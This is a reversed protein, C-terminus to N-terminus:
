KSIAGQALRPVPTPWWPIVIPFFRFCNFKRNGVIKSVEGTVINCRITDKIRGHLKKTDVIMYLTDENNQDFFVGEIEIWPGIVVKTEDVLYVRKKLKVFLSKSGGHISVRPDDDEEEEEKLECISLYGSVYDYNCMRVGGDYAAICRMPLADWENRIRHRYCTSLTASASKNIMFPDLQILIDDDDGMWYLMRKSAVGTCVSMMELTFNYASTVTRESRVTTEKWEGTESSFIQVKFTCFDRMDILKFNSFDLIEKDEDDADDPDMLRVVRCRYDANLQIMDGPQYDEKNNYYPLDCIFGVLVFKCVQPPPPLPVWQITYPNCIYYDHQNFESACCLVLDNYTGVVVPEQKLGHFSVLRQFLQNLPQSSPSMRRLFEEGKTNIATTIPKQNRDRQLYLFRGMFHTDSILTCWRKSVCKCQSVSKYSPLRCFIEVLLSDPLDYINSNMFKSSPWSSTRASALSYGRRSHCINVSPPVAGPSSQSIRSRGSKAGITSNHGGM